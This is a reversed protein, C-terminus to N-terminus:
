LIKKSREYWVTTNLCGRVVVLFTSFVAAWAPLTSFSLNRSNLRTCNQKTKKRCSLGELKRFLLIWRRWVLDYDALFLNSAYAEFLFCINKWMLCSQLKKKLFFFFFPPPCLGIFGMGMTFCLCSLVISDKLKIWSKSLWQFRGQFHWVRHLFSFKM